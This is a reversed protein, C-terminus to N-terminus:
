CTKLQALKCTSVKQQAEVIQEPTMKSLTYNLLKTHRNKYNTDKNEVSLMM